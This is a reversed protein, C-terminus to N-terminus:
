GLFKGTVTLEGGSINQINVRIRNKGGLSFAYLGKSSITDMTAFSSEDVVMLTTWQLPENVDLCAEVKLDFSTASGKVELVGDSYRVNNFVDTYGTVSRARAFPFIEANVLNM